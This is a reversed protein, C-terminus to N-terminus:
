SLMAIDQLLMEIQHSTFRNPPRKQLTRALTRVNILLSTFRLINMYDHLLSVAEKYGALLSSLLTCPLYEGDRMHFQAVDYWRNAGRIEGFDIIGTYHGNHQFIHSTDFDGHALYAQPENLLSDYRSRIQEIAHIESSSLAHEALYAIDVNWHELAFDRFTSLEARLRILDPKDRQIWGFGDVPISNILAIDRGAELLIADLKRPSLTISQSLPHGKIETTVMVSRQLPEYFHEFYIVEPVKVGMKGLKQHVAVEPAFSQGEEPLIRLYFTEHNHIIRYVCTSVGETVREIITNSTPFISDVLTKVHYINDFSYNM